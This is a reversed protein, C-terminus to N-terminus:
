LVHRDIFMVPHGGAAVVLRSGRLGAVGKDITQGCALRIGDRETALAAGPQVSQLFQHGRGTDLGFERRQDPFGLQQQLRDRALQDDDPRDPELRHVPDARQRGFFGHRGGLM